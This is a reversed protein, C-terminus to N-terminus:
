NDWGDHIKKVAFCARFGEDTNVTFRYTGATPFNWDGAWGISFNDIPAANPVPSENEGWNFYIRSDTRVHKLTNFNSGAYYEGQFSGSPASYALVSTLLNQNVATFSYNRLMFVGYLGVGCLTLIILYTIKSDINKHM